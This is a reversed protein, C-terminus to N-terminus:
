TRGDPAYVALCTIGQCGLLDCGSPDGGSRGTSLLSNHEYVGKVPGPLVVEFPFRTFRVSLM